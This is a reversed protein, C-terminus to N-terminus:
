LAEQTWRGEDSWCGVSATGVILFVSPAESRRALRRWNRLDKRSPAVEETPHTHWEGLYTRTGHSDHWMRDLVEQHGRPHRVYSEKTRLDTPFPRTALDVVLDRSDLIRRGILIGGSETDTENAQIEQLMVTLASSKVELRSGHPSRYTISSSM